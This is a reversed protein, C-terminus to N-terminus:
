KTEGRHKKLWFEFNKLVNDELYVRNLVRIGDFAYLVIQHGDTGVYLGDGLYARHDLGEPNAIEENRWTISM